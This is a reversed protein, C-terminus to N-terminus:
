RLHTSIVYKGGGTCFLTLYSILYLVAMEKVSWPDSFHVVSVAIAMTGILPLVVFRTKVGLILLGSCFFEAFVAIGLSLQPSIGLPDLFQFNGSLLKLLKPYGHGFCMMLGISFRLFVIGLDASPKFLKLKLM